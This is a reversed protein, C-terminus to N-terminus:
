SIGSTAFETVFVGGGAAAFAEGYSEERPNTVVCGLNDNSTYSCDTSNTFQSTQQAGTVTCGPLTHLGMQSHPALNVGEFTDIEGGEPWEPAHAWWAPWVSCGYPVHVFDAVWVSGVGYRVDTQLRVSNRKDGNAVTTSNDVQIIARNTSEDVFALKSSRAKDKPIFSCWSDDARRKADEIESRRSVSVYCRRENSQRSNM